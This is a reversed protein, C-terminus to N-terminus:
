ENGNLITEFEKLEKSRARAAARRGQPAQIDYKSLRYYLAAAINYNDLPSQRPNGPYKNANKLIDSYGFYYRAEAAVEFRGFLIGVGFGGMLGYGWRNDRYLLMPYDGQSFIGNKRSRDAYTSNINYSFTLALDLFVRMHRNMFYVHPQWILPLSVSNIRRLYSTDSQALQSYEFGRQLFELEAGIGGVAREKSYYKWAVGATYMGMLTRTERKPFFRCGGGGYGGRIGVYHQAAAPLTAAIILVATLLARTTYKKAPKM